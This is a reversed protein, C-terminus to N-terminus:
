RREQEPNFVVKVVDYKSILSGICYREGNTDTGQIRYHMNISDLLKFEFHDVNDYHTIRNGKEILEMDFM